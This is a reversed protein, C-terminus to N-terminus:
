KYHADLLEQIDRIMHETTKKQTITHMLPCKIDNKAIILMIETELVICYQMTAPYLRSCGGAPKESDPNGLNRQTRAWGGVEIHCKQEDTKLDVSVTDPAADQGAGVPREVHDSEDPM